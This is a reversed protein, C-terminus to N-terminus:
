MFKLKYFKSNYSFGMITVPENDIVVQASEIDFKSKSGSLLENLYKKCYDLKLDALASEYWCITNGFIAKQEIYVGAEDISKTAQVEKQLDKPSSINMDNKMFRIAVHIIEHVYIQLLQMKLLVKLDDRDRYRVTILYDKTFSTFLATNIYFTNIGSFGNLIHGGHKFFKLKTSEFKYSSKSGTLNFIGNEIQDILHENKIILSFFDNLDNFYEYGTFDVIKLSDLLNFYDVFREFNVVAKSFHLCSILQAVETDGIQETTKKFLKYLGSLSEVDMSSNTFRENLFLNNLISEKIRPFFNSDSNYIVKLKVPTKEVLENILFSKLNIERQNQHKEYYNIFASTAM